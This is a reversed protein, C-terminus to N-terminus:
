RLPRRELLLPEPGVHPLERAREVVDAGGAVEELMPDPAERDEDHPTVVTRQARELVHAPVAAIRQAVSGATAEGLQAASEM